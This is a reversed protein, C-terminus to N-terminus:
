LLDEAVLPAADEGRYDAVEAVELKGLLRDGLGERDRRPAPRGLAHGAARGRPQDRRRAV